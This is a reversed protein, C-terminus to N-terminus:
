KEPSFYNVLEFMWDTALDTSREGRLSKGFEELIERDEDNGGNKHLHGGERVQKASVAIWSAKRSRALM